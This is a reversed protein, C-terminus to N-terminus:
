KLSCRITVVVTDHEYKDSKQTKLHSEVVYKPDDDVLVGAGVMGDEIMKAMMACNLSDLPNKTFHFDYFIEVPYKGVKLKGKIELLEGHYLDAWEQRTRWHVGAYVKNLSVKEPITIEIVIEGM